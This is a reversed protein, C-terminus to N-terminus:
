GPISGPVKAMLQYVMNQWIEDILIGIINDLAGCDSVLSFKRFFVAVQLIKDVALLSKAKKLKLWRIQTLM